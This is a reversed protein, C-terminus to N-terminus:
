RREIAEILHDIQDESSIVNPSVRLHNLKDSHFARVVIQEDRFLRAALESADDKVRWAYLSASRQWSEPSSWQVSSSQQVKERAYQWLAHLRDTREKPTLQQNFEIADGLALTEALNRTGYDEYVRASGAWRDQGWTVWIAQLSEQLKKSVCVLGLGKPAGLWKHPSTALLDVQLEAFNVPLMGVTQAADVAVFEVGQSRAMEAIERVPYLLGMTNDVHPIVLLRTEPRIQRQYAEVVQGASIGPFLEQPFEFKRYRYQGTQSRHVFPLSAGAHCLSSFLVEDSEKLPLGGALLNFSETTNHTIAVEDTEAGMLSAALQRTQERAAEWAGGWMYLWPNTECLRLTKERAEHVERPITGISAHNLYNVKPDLLSQERLIQLKDHFALRRRHGATQRLENRIEALGPMAHLVEAAATSTAAVALGGALAGGLFRRRSTASASPRRESSRQQQASPQQASRQQAASQQMAPPQLPAQGTVQNPSRDM